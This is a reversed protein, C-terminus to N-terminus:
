NSHCWMFDGKNKKIVQLQKLFIECCMFDGNSKKIVQLKKKIDPM